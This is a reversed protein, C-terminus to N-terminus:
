AAEIEITGGYPASFYAGRRLQFDWGYAILPYAQKARPMSNEHPLGSYDVSFAFLYVGEHQNNFQQIGETFFETLLVPAFGGMPRDWIRVKARAM